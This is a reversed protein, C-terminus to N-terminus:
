GIRAQAIVAERWKKICFFTGASIGLGHALASLSYLVYASTTYGNTDLVKAMVLPLGSILLGVPLLLLLKPPIYNTSAGIYLRDSWSPLIKLETQSIEDPYLEVITDYDKQSATEHTRGVLFKEIPSVEVTKRLRAIEESTMTLMASFSLTKKGIMIPGRKVEEYTQSLQQLSFDFVNNDDKEPIFGYALDFIITSLDSPLMFINFTFSRALNQILVNKKDKSLKGVAYPVEKLPMNCIDRYRRISWDQAIIKRSPASCFDAATSFFYFNFLVVCVYKNKVM